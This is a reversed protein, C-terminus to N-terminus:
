VMFELFRLHHAYATTPSARVSRAAGLHPAQFPGGRTGARLGQGRKITEMGAHLGQARDRLLKRRRITNMQATATERHAVECGATQATCWVRTAACKANGTWRVTRGVRRGPKLADAVAGEHAGRGVCGLGVGSGGAPRGSVAHEMVGEGLVLGQVIHVELKRGTVIHGGRQGPKALALGDVAQHRRVLLQRAAGAEVQRVEEEDTRRKRAEPREFGLKRMSSAENWCMGSEARASVM